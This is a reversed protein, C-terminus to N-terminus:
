GHQEIEEHVYTRNFAPSLKAISNKGAPEIHSNTVFFVANQLLLSTTTIKRFFANNKFLLHPVTQPLLESKLRFM